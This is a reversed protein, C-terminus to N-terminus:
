TGYYKPIIYAVTSMGLNRSFTFAVNLHLLQHITLLAVPSTTYFEGFHPMLKLRESMKLGIQCYHNLFSVQMQKIKIKDASLLAATTGM